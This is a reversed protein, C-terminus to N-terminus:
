NKNNESIFYIKLNQISKAVIFVFFTLIASFILGTIFSLNRGVDSTVTQMAIKQENTIEDKTFFGDGNLDFKELAIKSSIDTYAVTAVIILYSTFFIIVSLYLWKYKKHKFIKKRNLLIVILISLSIISPIILHFPLNIQSM